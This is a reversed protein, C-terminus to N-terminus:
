PSSVATTWPVLFPQDVPLLAALDDCDPVEFGSFGPFGWRECTRECQDPLKDDGLTQTELRIM